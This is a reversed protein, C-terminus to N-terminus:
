RRQLNNHLTNQRLFTSSIAVTVTFGLTLLFVGHLASIFRQIVVPKVTLSLNNLSELTQTVESTIIVADDFDVLEAGFRSRLM